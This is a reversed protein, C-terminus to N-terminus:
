IEIGSTYQYKTNCRCWKIVDKLRSTVDFYQDDKYTSYLYVEFVCLKVFLILLMVNSHDVQLMWQQFVDSCFLEWQTLDNRSVNIKELSIQEFFIQLVPFRSTADRVSLTQIKLSATLFTIAPRLELVGLKRGNKRKILLKSLRMKKPMQFM